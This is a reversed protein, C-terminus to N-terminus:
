FTVTITKNDQTVSANPYVLKLTNAIWTLDRMHRETRLWTWDAFIRVSGEPYDTAECHYAFIDRSKFYNEKSHFLDNYIVDCCLDKLDPGNTSPTYDTFYRPQYLGVDIGSSMELDYFPLTNIGYVTFSTELRASVSDVSTIKITLPSVTHGTHKIQGVASAFSDAIRYAQGSFSDLPPRNKESIQGSDYFCFYWIAVLIIVAVLM